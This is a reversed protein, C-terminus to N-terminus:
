VGEYRSASPLLRRRRPRRPRSDGRDVRLQASGRTCPRFHTVRSDHDSHLRGAAALQFSGLCPAHCADPRLLQARLRTHHLIHPPPSPLAASMASVIMCRHLCVMGHARIPWPRSQTEPAHYPKLPSLADAHMHTHSRHGHRERSTRHMEPTHRATDCQGSQETQTQSSRCVGVHTASSQVSLRACVPPQNHTHLIERQDRPSGM